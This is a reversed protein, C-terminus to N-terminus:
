HLNAIMGQIVRNLYVIDEIAAPKYSNDSREKYIQFGPFSSDKEDRISYSTMLSHGDPELEIKTAQIQWTDNDFDWLSVSWTNSEYSGQNEWWDYGPKESGSENEEEKRTKTGRMSFEKASEIADKQLKAVQEPPIESSLNPESPTTDPDQSDTKAQDDM